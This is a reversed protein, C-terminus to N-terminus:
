AASAVSLGLRKYVSLASANSPTVFLHLDRYGAAALARMSASICKGAFGQGKFEPATVSFALLPQGQWLTIFCASTLNGSQEIVLSSAEVFKGFEGNFTAEVAEIAEMESEGEYDVTGVYASLFLRGLLPVDERTMARLGVPEADTSTTGSLARVMHIKSPSAGL